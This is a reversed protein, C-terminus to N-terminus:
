YAQIWSETKWSRSWSWYTFIMLLFLLLLVPVQAVTYYWYTYVLCLLDACEKVSYLSTFPLYKCIGNIGIVKGTPKSCTHLKASWLIETKRVDVVDVVVTFNTYNSNFNIVVTLHYMNCHQCHKKTTSYHRSHKQPGKLWCKGPSEPNALKGRIKKGSSYPSPAPLVTSSFELMKERSWICENGKTSQCQQNPPLFPM